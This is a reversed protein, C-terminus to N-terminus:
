NEIKEVEYVLLCEKFKQCAINICVTLEDYRIIVNEFDYKKEISDFFKNNEIFLFDLYYKNKVKSSQKEDFCYKAIPEKPYYIIGEKLPEIYGIEQYKTIKRTTCNLIFISGIILIIQKM